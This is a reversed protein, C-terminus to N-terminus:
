WQKKIWTKTWGFINKPKCVIYAQELDFTFSLWDLFTKHKRVNTLFLIRQYFDM